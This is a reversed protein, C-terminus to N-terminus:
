RGFNVIRRYASKDKLKRFLSVMPTFNAEIFWVKGDRDYAMDLGLTHRKKYTNGLHKAIRLAADDLKQLYENENGSGLSSRVIATRVEIVKGRSRMTNTIFHNGGAVKALKGTVVWPSAKSKRQVMVRIDCPKGEVKLLPIYQQVIYRKGTKKRKVQSWAANLGSVKRSKSGAKVRYKGGDSVAVLMIGKGGWSQTPKIVIKRHKSIMLQFTSKKLWQTEPLYATVDGHKRLVKHKSWKSWSLKAM